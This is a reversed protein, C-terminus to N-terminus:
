NIFALLQEHVLHVDTEGGLEENVSLENVGGATLLEPGDVGLVLRKDALHLGGGLLVHVSGTLGSVSGESYTVM